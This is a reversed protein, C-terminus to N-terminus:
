VCAFMPSIDFKQMIRKRNVREGSFLTDGIQPYISGSFEDTM